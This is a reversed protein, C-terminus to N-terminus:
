FLSGKGSERAEDQIAADCLKGLRSLANKSYAVQNIWNDDGLCISRLAAPILYALWRLDLGAQYQTLTLKSLPLPLPMDSTNFGIVMAQLTDDFTM